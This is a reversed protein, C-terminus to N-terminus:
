EIFCGVAETERVPPVDGALLAALADALYHENVVTRKQGLSVIWNDIKGQYEVGGRTNVVVVEPTVEAEFYDRFQYNPDLVTTVPPQYRALYRQITERDYWRGSFIGVFRVETESFDERLSKLTAAYNECLPCEPSLFIFVTLPTKLLDAGIVMDRNWQSVSIDALSQASMPSISIFFLLLGISLPKRPLKRPHTAM